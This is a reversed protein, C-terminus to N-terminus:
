GRNVLQLPKHLWRGLKIQGACPNPRLTSVHLTLLPTRLRPRDPPAPMASLRYATATALGLAFASFWVSPWLSIRIRSWM